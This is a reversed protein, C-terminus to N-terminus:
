WQRQLRVAPLLQGAGAPEWLLRARVQPPAHVVAPDTAQTGGGPPGGERVDGQLSAWGGGVLGGAGGGAWEGAQEGSAPPARTAPNASVSRAGEEFSVAWPLAAFM